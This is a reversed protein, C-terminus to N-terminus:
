VLAAGIVRWQWLQLALFVMSATFLTYGLRRVLGPQSRSWVLVLVLLMVAAVAAQLWGAYHLWRMQPLPYNGVLDSPGATALTASLLVACAVLAFMALAGMLGAGVALREVSGVSRKRGLRWIVGFVAMLGFLLSAGIGGFLAMPHGFARVRELTHVGSADALAVVRGGDRLVAVRQGAASEFVDEAVRRYRQPREGPLLLTEADVAEVRIAGVAGFLATFSSFARRNNIYTGAVEALTDPEGREGALLAAPPSLGLLHELVQDPLTNVVSRSEAVNQAIFVGLGLEPVLMMNALYASTAGGHGLVRHGRFPRDQFGHALDAALPRDAFGRSFLAAHGDPSLLRVGDLAGGGLHFGVWRAMDAPTSILGGAPWYPGLQMYDQPGLGGEKPRYGRALRSARDGQLAAPPTWDTDHMGLPDLLETRLLEGYPRGAVDVLVQAALASGWNSYSTRSGPPYVRRPQHEALVQALTRPDDDAVTFVQLSDEFGARHHMLHRLTVPAGFADDIALSTLYSNVDADLDLLGREAFIMALTWTFTKSVSGIRFLGHAPDIAQGSGLDAQGYGALLLPRGPRVVAIGIAPLAHERRLADALGDLYTPLTDPVDDAPTASASPAPLTADQGPMPEQDLSEPPVRDPGSAENIPNAGGETSAALAQAAVVSVWVLAFWVLLRVRRRIM